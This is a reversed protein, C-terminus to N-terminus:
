KLIISELLFRCGPVGANESSFVGIGDGGVDGGADRGGEGVREIRDNLSGTTAEEFADMADAVGEM